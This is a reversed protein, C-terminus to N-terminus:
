GRSKEFAIYEEMLKKFEIVVDASDSSGDDAMFQDHIHGALDEEIVTYCITPWPVECDDPIVEQLQEAIDMIKQTRELDGADCFWENFLANKKGLRKEIGRDLYMALQAADRLVSAGPPNAGKTLKACLNWTNGMIVNAVFKENGTLLDIYNQLAERSKPTNFLGIPKLLYSM